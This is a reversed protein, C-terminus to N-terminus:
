SKFDKKAFNEASKIIKDCELFKRKNYEDDKIYKSNEKINIYGSKAASFFLSIAISIDSCLASNTKNYSSSMTQLALVSNKILELPAENAKKLAIQYGQFDIKRNKYRKLLYELNKMDKQAIELFREGLGELKNLLNKLYDNKCGRKDFSLNVVMQSLSCAMFAVIASVSGGSPTPSKSAVIKCFEGISYNILEKKM